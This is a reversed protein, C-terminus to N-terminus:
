KRSLEVIKQREILQANQPFQKGKKQEPIYAKQVIAIKRRGYKHNYCIVCTHISSVISFSICLWISIRWLMARSELELPLIEHSRSGSMRMEKTYDNQMISHPDLKYRYNEFKEFNYANQLLLSANSYWIKGFHGSGNYHIVIKEIKKRFNIEFRVIDIRGYDYYEIRIACSNQNAWSLWNMEQDVRRIYVHFDYEAIALAMEEIANHCSYIPISYEEDFHLNHSVRVRYDNVALVPGERSTAVESTRLMFNGFSNLHSVSSGLLISAAVAVNDELFGQVAQHKDEYTVAGSLKDVEICTRIQYENKTRVWRKAEFGVISSDSLAELLKSSNGNESKCEVIQHTFITLKVHTIVGLMGMSGPWALFDSDSNDITIRTGNVLIATLGVLNSQFSHTHQGHLSTSVAGGLRQGTIAGFGHLEYGHKMLQMQAWEVSCGASFLATRNHIGDFTCLNDLSIITGGEDPCQLDTSSHGAGVVRVSPSTQLISIIEFESNVYRVTSSCVRSCWFSEWNTYFKSEREYSYIIKPSCVSLPSFLFWLLIPFGWVCLNSVIKVTYTRKTITKYLCTQCPICSCCCGISLFTVIYTILLGIEISQHTM